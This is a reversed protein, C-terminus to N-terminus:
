SAKSVCIKSEYFAFVFYRLVDRRGLLNYGPAESETFDADMEIYESPFDVIRMQIRHRYIRVVGGIGRGELPLGDRINIGMQKAIYPGFLSTDAGTDMLVVVRHWEQAGRRRLEVLVLPRNYPDNFDSSRFCRELKPPPPIPVEPIPLFLNPTVFPGTPDTYFPQQATEVMSQLSDIQGDIGAAWTLSVLAAGLGFLKGIARHAM